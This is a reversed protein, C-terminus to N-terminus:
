QPSEGKKIIQAWVTQAQAELAPISGDNEILYHCHAQYFAQDPQADIRAAAAAQSLGDRAMIRAIRTERSAIVGIVSECLSDAGTQFLTPADYLIVSHGNASLEIMQSLSAERIYPFTLANLENLKAPDAFVAAALKPRDLQGMPTLINGFATCLADLMPQCSSCLTRYVADANVSGAGFRQFCNSVATKGAGSGGTLGIIRM